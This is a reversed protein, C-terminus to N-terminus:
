PGGSQGDNEAVVTAHDRQRLQAFVTADRTVTRLGGAQQPGRPSIPQFGPADLLLEAFELIQSIRVDNKPVEIMEQHDFAAPLPHHVQVVGGAPGPPDGDFLEVLAVGSYSEHHFRSWLEM